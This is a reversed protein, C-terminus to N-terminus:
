RLDTIKGPFSAEIEELISKKQLFLEQKFLPHAQVCLVSDKIVVDEKTFTNNLKKHLLSIIFEKLSEEETIKKFIKGFFSNINNM